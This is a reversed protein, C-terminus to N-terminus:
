YKEQKKKSRKKYKDFTVSVLISFWCIGLGIFLLVAGNPLPGEKKVVIEDLHYLSTVEDYLAPYDVDKGRRVMKTVNEILQGAANRLSTSGNFVPTVFTNQTNDMLLKTADIKVNYYLDNNEGSRNLYDLYEASKQAKSTVPAYGETQAYAIQVSNTLMFQTFLWSALVEQPDEKNFLCMSPGQSIMKPHETDFQPIPMVVTEFRILKEEAIDILPADCGMWTAGATSDVAFICQGANLYNAPYGGIKFTSFARDKANVAITELISQTTDNFIQIEGAATSYGANKQKLMQIMMNDTSKYIFPIMVKQGNVAFNGVADKELAAESVEWVFDWTLVEPLTYGLKEVYTKNVYCAETSRMYPVAYYHGDFSCESLFQPIIEETKPADFKVGSGGLGYAPDYLLDDLPVVTDAGTLYTAIHDPYTICVNPTTNTPINTIVDKYIDGYDNYLKLKVTINPYVEEFDAVAKAYIDRQTSNNDNKAWFSIEFKRSTDFKEPIEFNTVLSTPNQGREVKKGHCASLGVISSVVLLLCLLKKM